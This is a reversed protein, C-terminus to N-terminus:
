RRASFGPKKVAAKKPKKPSPNKKTPSVKSKKKASGHVTDDQSAEGQESMSDASDSEQM